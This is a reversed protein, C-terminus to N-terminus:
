EGEEIELSVINFSHELTEYISSGILDSSDEEDVM